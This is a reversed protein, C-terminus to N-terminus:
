LAILHIAHIRRIVNCQVIKIRRNAIGKVLHKFKARSFSISADQLVNIEVIGTM